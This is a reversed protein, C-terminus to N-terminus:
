EANMAIEARLNNATIFGRLQVVIVVLTILLCAGRLSLGGWVWYDSLGWGQISVMEGIAGVVFSFILLFVVLIVNVVVERKLDTLTSIVVVYAKPKQLKLKKPVDKIVGEVYNFFAFSLAGFLASLPLVVTNVSNFLPSIVGDTMWLSLFSIGFSVVFVLFLRFM